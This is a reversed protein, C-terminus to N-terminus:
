SILQDVGGGGYPPSGFMHKISVIHKISVDEVETILYLIYGCWGEIHYSDQHTQYYASINLIIPHSVHAVLLIRSYTGM